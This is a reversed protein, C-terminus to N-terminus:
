GGAPYVRVQGTEDYRVCSGLFLGITEANTQLHQSVRDTTFQLGCRAMAAPLLIQDALRADLCAGSELFALAEAAAEEAVQEAPKGPAGLGTFGAAVFSGGTATLEAHCYVRIFVYTGIPGAAVVIRERAFWHKAALTRAVGRVMREAITRPLSSVCALIEIRIQNRPPRELALQRLVAADGACSESQGPATGEIAVEIRGGGRPFFGRERLAVHLHLELMALCPVYVLQLFDVPPAWAVHTGGGICLRSSGAAHLLPLAAAQTVLTTAGATGVELEYEGAQVAGPAFSLTRSGLTAGTVAAGCTRAVLEVASLHQAKLGPQPRRARINAMRFPQGLWASLALATRLVQGGGAGRSGDVEIMAGGLGAQTVSAAGLM